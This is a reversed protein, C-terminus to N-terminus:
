DAVIVDAESLDQREHANPNRVAVCFMGARKAALVGVRSDEFVICDRPPLGLRDATILYAEPDPKGHTVASGDVILAFFNRLGFRRLIADIAPGVASSTIALTLGAAHLARVANEIGPMLELDSTRCIEDFHRQRRELLEEVSEQWGFAERIYALEDVIRRGSGFRIWEPLADYNGGLERCLARTAASHQRELDIMTEDFDFIAARFQRAIAM